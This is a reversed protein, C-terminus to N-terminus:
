RLNFKSEFEGIRRQCDALEGKYRSDLERAKKIPDHGVVAIAKSGLWRIGHGRRKIENKANNVEGSLRSRENLLAEYESRSTADMTSHAETELSRVATELQDPNLGHPEHYRHTRDYYITEGLALLAAAGALPATIPVTVTAVLGGGAGVGLAARVSDNDNSKRKPIVPEPEALRRSFPDTKPSLDLPRPFISQREESEHRSKGSDLLNSIPAAASPNALADRIGATSFGDVLLNSRELSPAQPIVLSEQLSPVIGDSIAPLKSAKAFSQSVPDRSTLTLDLLPNEYGLTAPKAKPIEPVKEPVEQQSSHGTIMDSVRDVGADIGAKLEGLMGAVRMEMINQQTLQDRVVDSFSFPKEPDLKPMSAEYTDALQRVEKPDGAFSMAAQVPAPIPAYVAMGLATKIVGAAFPSEHHAAVAADCNEALTMGIEPVALMGNGLSSGLKDLPMDKMMEGLGEQVGMYGVHMAQWIPNQELTQQEAQDSDPGNNM